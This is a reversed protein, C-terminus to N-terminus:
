WNDEIGGAGKMGMVVLDIDTEKILSKIEDSAIGIRVLWQVEVGFQLHLSDALKSILEENEKQMEEATVMVYPVESVPTPLMYAHFLILKANLVKALNAAYTAANTSAPSFDVPVLLTQM